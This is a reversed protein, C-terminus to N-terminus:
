NVNEKTGNDSCKNRNGAWCRLYVGAGKRWMGTRRTLIV